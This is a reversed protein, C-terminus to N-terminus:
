AVRVKLTSGTRYVQGVPVGAGAAAADDAADTLGALSPTTLTPSNLPALLALAADLGTITSTAQSGTHNARDLYYSGPEGELLLASGASIVGDEIQIITDLITQLQASTEEEAAIRARLNRLTNELTSRFVVTLRGAEDVCQVPAAPIVLANDAM